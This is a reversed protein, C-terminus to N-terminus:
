LATVLRELIERVGEPGSVLADAGARLEEPTEASAVGLCVVQDLAGEDRLQRLADFADVDTRDDGAYLATRIAPSRGLLARVGTGKTIAVPPRVELVKRGWHVALGEGEADAALQRAVREAGAEDPAGRWHFAYIAGKDEGRLRARPVDAGALAARAFRQVQARHREAEPAPEVTTTGARLLEAGHNGIYSVTGLSVLRRAVTAQRGSVCATLGYEKAVRALPARTTQPVHADNAMRVIPALTGDVDLLVAARAPAAVIPALLEDITPDPPVRM